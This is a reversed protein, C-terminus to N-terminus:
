NGRLVLLSDTNINVNRISYDDKNEVMRRNFIVLPWVQTRLFNFTVRKYFHIL